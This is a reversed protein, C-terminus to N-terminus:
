NSAHLFVAMKLSNKKQDLLFIQPTAFNEGKKPFFNSSAAAVNATEVRMSDATSNAAEVETSDIPTAVASNPEEQTSDM